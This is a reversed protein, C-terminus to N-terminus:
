AWYDDEDDANEIFDLIFEVSKGSSRYAEYLRDKIADEKREPYRQDLLRSMQDILDEYTEKAKSIKSKLAEIKRDLAAAEKETVDNGEPWAM